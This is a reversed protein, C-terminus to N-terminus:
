GEFIILNPSPFILKPPFTSLLMMFDGTKPPRAGELEDTLLGLVGNFKPASFLDRPVGLKIKDEAGAEAGTGVMEPLIGVTLECGFIDNPVDCGTIDKPALVEVTTVEAGSKPVGECDCLVKANPIGDVTALTAGANLKLEFGSVAADDTPEGKLKPPGFGVVLGAFVPPKLNSRPFVDVRVVLAGVCLSAGFDTIKPSLKAFLGAVNEKPDAFLGAVDAGTKPVPEAVFTVDTKPVGEPSVLVAATKPAPVGSVLSVGANPTGEPLLSVFDVGIKLGAVVFVVVAGGANPKDEVGAVVLMDTKPDPPEAGLKPVGFVVSFLDPNENPEVVVCDDDKLVKLVGVVVWLEPNLKPDLWGFDVFAVTTDVLELVKVNPPAGACDNEKLGTVVDDLLTKPPDPEEKPVDVGLAPTKPVGVVVAAVPLATNPM